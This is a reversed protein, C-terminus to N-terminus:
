KGCGGDAWMIIFMFFVFIGGIFKTACGEAEAIVGGAKGTGRGYILLLVGIFLIFAIDSM